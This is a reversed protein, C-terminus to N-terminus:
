LEIGGGGSIATANVTGCVMGFAASSVLRDNWFTPSMFTTDTGDIVANYEGDFVVDQDAGVIVENEPNGDQVYDGAVILNNDHSVVVEGSETVVIGDTDYEDDDSWVFSTVTSCAAFDLQENCKLLYAVFDPSGEVEELWVMCRSGVEAALVAPADNYSQLLPRQDVFAYEGDRTAGTYLVTSPTGGASTRATIIGQVIMAPPSEDIVANDVEPASSLGRGEIQPKKSRGRSDVVLRDGRKGQLGANGEYDNGEFYELSQLKKDLPAFTVAQRDFTLTFDHADRGFTLTMGQVRAAITNTGGTTQWNNVRIFCGMPFATFFSNPNAVIRVSGYVRRRKLFSFLVDAYNSLTSTDDKLVNGDFDTYKIFRPDYLVITKSYGLTGDTKTATLPDRGTYRMWMPEGIPWYIYCVQNILSDWRADGSANANFRYHTQMVQPDKLLIYNGEFAEPADTPFRPTDDDDEYIRDNLRVDGDDDYLGHTYATRKVGQAYSGAYYDGDIIMGTPGVYWRYALKEVFMSQGARVYEAPSTGSRRQLRLDVIEKTTTYRRGIHRYNGDRSAPHWPRGGMIAWVPNTEDAWDGAPSGFIYGEVTGSGDAKDRLYHGFASSPYSDWAPTLEEYMETMSGWGHVILTDCSASIDENIDLAEVTVPQNDVVSNFKPLYVDKPSAAAKSLDYFRLTAGIGSAHAGDCTTPDLWYGLVPCEAVLSDLLGLWTKGKTHVERPVFATVSLPLDSFDLSAIFNSGGVISAFEAEIIQKVTRDSPWPYVTIDNVVRNYWESVEACPNSALYEIYDSAVYEIADRGRQIVRRGPLTRGMFWIVGNVTYKVLTRTALMTADGIDAYQYFRLTAAKGMQHQLDLVEYGDANLETAAM